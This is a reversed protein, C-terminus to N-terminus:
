DIMERGKEDYVCRIKGPTKGKDLFIFRQFMHERMIHEMWPKEQLHEMSNGHATALIGCGSTLAYRLAEYDEKTGIEDVAVVEPGMSRIVMYIGEVKPCGDLVDCHLGVDKQPIGRYSGAIESREDVVSVTKTQVGYEGSAVQRIIDRLLTTKGGGPPSVILTSLFREKEFLHCMVKDACGKVEHSIRINLFSINRLTKVGGHEVVVKGALGVRHGGPITLFGNKIEEEFAYLSYKSIYELVQRFEIETVVQGHTIHKKGQMLLTIPKQIRIHIEQLQGGNQVEKQLIGRLREPFIQLIEDQFM